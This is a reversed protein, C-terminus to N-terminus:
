EWGGGKLFNFLPSQGRKLFRGRGKTLILFLPSYFLPSAGRLFVIEGKGKLFPSPPNLPIPNNFILPSLDYVAEVPVDIVRSL